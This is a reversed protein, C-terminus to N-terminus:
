RAAAATREAAGVLPWAAACVALALALLLAFATKLGADQAVFGLLPPGALAGAYGMMAVLALGRTGQTGPLHGVTGYLIPVVVSMGAGVLAFGAVAGWLWPSALVVGLGLSALAAAVVMTRAKGWRQIVADGGLRGAVMTCSFAAFGLPALAVSAHLVDALYVGGWDGVAGEIVFSGVILLGLSWVLRQGGALPSTHEAVVSATVGTATTKTAGTAQASDALPATRPPGSTAPALLRGWAVAIHALSLVAVALLHQWPQWGLPAALVVLGAGVLGGLSFLAHFRSMLSRGALKEVAVAQANMGVDLVSGSAGALFLGLMFGPVGPAAGIVPLALAGVTASGLTVWRSGWHAMMWRTLPFVVVAGVGAALLATGLEDHGLALQNRFVPILALWSAYGLGLNFFVLWVGWQAHRWNPQPMPHNRDDPLSAPESLTM